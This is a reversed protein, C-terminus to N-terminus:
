CISGSEKMQKIHHGRLLNMLLVGHIYSGPSIPTVSTPKFDYLGPATLAIIILRDKIRDAVSRFPLGNPNQYASIIELVNLKPFQFGKGYYHLLLEGKQNVPLTDGDFLAKMDRITFRKMVPAVALSPFLFGQYRTFLSVRRYVGDEDPPIIVNGIGKAGQALAEIPPVHSKAERFLRGAATSKIGFPKISSIDKNNGEGTSMSIPLFVNM